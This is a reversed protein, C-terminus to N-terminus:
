ILKQISHHVGHEDNETNIGTNIYIVDKKMLYSFQPKLNSLIPITYFIFYLIIKNVM